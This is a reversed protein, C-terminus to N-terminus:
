YLALVRPTVRRRRYRRRRAATATTGIPKATTADASRAQLMRMGAGSKRARTCTGTTAGRAPKRKCARRARRASPRISASRPRRRRGSRRNASPAPRGHRRASARRRPRSIAADCARRRGLLSSATARGTRSRCATSCRGAGSVAWRRSAARVFGRRRRVDRGARRADGLRRRRQGRIARSKFVAVQNYLEGRRVPYQVLHRIPAPGCSSTTSARRSGLGRRDPDHRSLRRLGLLGSRRRRPDSQAHQSRLGDAGIM